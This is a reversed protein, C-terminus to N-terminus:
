TNSRYRIRKLIKNCFNVNKRSFPLNQQHCWEIADSVDENKHLVTFYSALEESAFFHFPQLSINHETHM